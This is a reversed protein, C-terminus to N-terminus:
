PHILDRWTAPLPVMEDAQLWTLGGVLETKSYAWGGDYRGAGHANGDAFGGGLRLSM